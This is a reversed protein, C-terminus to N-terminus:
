GLTFPGPPRRHARDVGVHTSGSSPTTATRELPQTTLRQGPRPGGGDLTRDRRNAFNFGPDGTPGRVPPRGPVDGPRVPAPGSSTPLLVADVRPELIRLRGGGGRRHSPGGRLRAAGLRDTTGFFEVRATFDDPRDTALDRFAWSHEWALIESGLDTVGVLAQEFRAVVADDSRRLITVGAAELQAVVREFASRSVADPREWAETEVVAVTSPVRAPPPMAPGHLAPRGPAGGARSAIAIAVPRM